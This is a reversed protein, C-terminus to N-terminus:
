ERKLQKDKKHKISQNHKLASGFKNQLYAKIRELDEPYDADM